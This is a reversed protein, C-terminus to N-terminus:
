KLYENLIELLLNHYETITCIITNYKLLLFLSKLLSRLLIDNFSLFLIVDVPLEVGLCSFIATSRDFELALTSALTLKSGTTTMSSKSFLKM